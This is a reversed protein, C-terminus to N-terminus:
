DQIFDPQLTRGELEVYKLVTSIRHPQPFISGEVHAHVTKFPKEKKFVPYNNTKITSQHVSQHLISLQIKGYCNSSVVEQHHAHRM